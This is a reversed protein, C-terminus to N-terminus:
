PTAIRASRSPSDNSDSIALSVAGRCENTASISAVPIFGEKYINEASENTRNLADLAGVELGILLLATFGMIAFLQIRISLKKM